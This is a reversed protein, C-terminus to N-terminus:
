EEAEMAKQKYQPKSPIEKLKIWPANLRLWEEPSDATQEESVKRALKRYCQELRRSVLHSTILENDQFGMQKLVIETWEGIFPAVACDRLSVFYGMRMPSGLDRAFDLLRQDHQPLLHREAVILSSKKHLRGIASEEELYLLPSLALRITGAGAQWAELMQDTPPEDVLEYPLEARDLEDQLRFFTSPFHAVLLVYRDLPTREKIASVIAHFKNEVSLSYTDSCLEVRSRRRINGFFGM